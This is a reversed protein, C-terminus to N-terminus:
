HPLRTLPRLTASVWDLSPSAGHIIAYAATLHFQQTPVAGRKVRPVIPLPKAFCGAPSIKRAALGIRTMGLM